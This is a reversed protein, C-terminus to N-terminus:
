RYHWAERAKAGTCSNQTTLTWCPITSQRRERRPEARSARSNAPAKKRARRSQRKAQKTDGHRTTIHEGRLINEWLLTFLGTSKFVKKSKKQITRHIFNEVLPPFCPRSYSFGTSFDQFFGFLFTTFFVHILGRKGTKLQKRAHQRKFSSSSGRLEEFFEEFLKQFFLLFFSTNKGWPYKKVM